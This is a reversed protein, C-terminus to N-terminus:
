KLLKDREKRNNNARNMADRMKDYSWTEFNSTMELRVSDLAITLRKIEQATHERGQAVSLTKPKRKSM